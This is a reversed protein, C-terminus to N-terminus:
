FNAAGSNTKIKKTIQIASFSSILLFKLMFIEKFDDSNKEIKVRVFKM